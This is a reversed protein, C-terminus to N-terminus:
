CQFLDPFVEKGVGGDDGTLATGGAVLEGQDLVDVRGVTDFADVALEGERGGAFGAGFVDAVAGDGGGIDWADALLRLSGM